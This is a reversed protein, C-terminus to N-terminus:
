VLTVAAWKSSVVQLQCTCVSRPSFTFQDYLEGVYSVPWGQSARLTVHDGVILSLAALDTLTGNLGSRGIAGVLITTTPRLAHISDILDKVNKASLETRQDWDGAQGHWPGHTTWGGLFDNTGIHMLVIDPQFLPIDTPVMQALMHDKYGVVSEPQGAQFGGHGEFDKDLPGNYNLQSDEAWAWTNVGGPPVVNGYSGVFDYAYGAANLQSQLFGRYSQAPGDGLTISDGLPMIRVPTAASAQTQTVSSRAAVVSAVLAFTLAFM